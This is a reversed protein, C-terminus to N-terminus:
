VHRVVHRHLADVLALAVNLRRMRLRSRLEVPRRVRQVLAVVDVRVFVEHVEVLLLEVLGSLYSM